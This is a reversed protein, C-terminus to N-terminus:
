PTKRKGNTSAYPVIFIDKDKMVVLLHNKGALTILIRNWSAKAAITTKQEIPQEVIITYGDQAAAKAIRKLVDTMKNNKFRVVITRGQLTSLSDPVYGGGPDAGRELLMKVAVINGMKAAEAFATVGSTTKANVDAGKELLTKAADAHGEQVACMLPTHGDPLASKMHAGKEALLAIFGYDGKCAAILLPFHGALDADNVDAGKEILVSAAEMRGHEAAFFLPSQGARNKGKAQAGHQLLYKIINLHEEKFDSADVAAQLASAPGNNSPVIYNVDAGAEMLAQVINRRGQRAATMLATYGNKDFANISTANPKTLKKLLNMSGNESAIMLATRGQANKADINIGAKMFLDVAEENNKTVEDLFAQESFPVGNKELKTTYYWKTLSSRYLVVAGLLIIIVLALVASGIIKLNKKVGSTKVNNTTENRADDTSQDNSAYDVPQSDATEPIIKTEADKKSLVDEGTRKKERLTHIDLYPLPGIDDLYNRIKKELFLIPLGILFGAVIGIVGAVVVAHLLFGILLGGCGLVLPPLWWLKFALALSEYRRKERWPKGEPTNLFADWEQADIHLQQQHKKIVRAIDRHGKEEAINLATKGSKNRAASDIGSQLLLEVIGTETQDFAAKHLATWGDDNIANINVGAELLVEAIATQGKSAAMMLPSSGDRILNVNIGEEILGKLAETNGNQLAELLAPWKKATPSSYDPTYDKSDRKTKSPTPVQNAEKKLQKQYGKSPGPAKNEM